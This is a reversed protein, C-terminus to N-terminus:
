VQKGLISIFIAEKRLIDQNPHYTLYDDKIKTIKRDFQRGVTTINQRNPM